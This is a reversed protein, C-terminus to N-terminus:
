KKGILEIFTATFYRKKPSQAYVRFWKGLVDSYQDFVKVNGSLAVQGYVGIWNASDKEIGPIAETVRKGIIEAGKLGTIEEFAKNVDHFIYDVPQNSDNVVIEHYAYGFPMNAVFSRFRQESERLSNENKIRDTIDDISAVMGQFQDSEDLLPTANISLLVRQGDPWEIAHRVDYVSQRTNKVINFPLANDPFPEGDLTTIRWEPANYTRQTIKDMTLGLVKEAQRNAFTIQGDQNVLTISVPSTETIHSILNRERHLKEESEIQKSIDFGVGALISSRGDKGPIPFKAVLWSHMGDEHLVKEVSKLETNSALVSSDNETLNAAVEPPWLDYNTKGWWEATELNFIEEFTRNVYIHRGEADKMFVVGPLHEMVLSFLKQSEELEIEVQKRKREERKKEVTRVIFHNLETFLVKFDNSKQLYFDAGLNLAEIVVEERGKGTLIIFPIDIDKERIEALLRLGDKGPMQYDCVIVDYNGSELKQFVLQPSALSDVKLNNGSKELCIKTLELFSEEDDVHLISITSVM